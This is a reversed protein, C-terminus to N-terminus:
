EVVLLASEHDSIFNLTLIRNREICDIIHATTCDGLRLWVTKPPAGYLFSLHHFDSDKSVITFQNQRAYDWIIRDEASALGLESVHASGDFERALSALLRRSLNQDLLLKSTM